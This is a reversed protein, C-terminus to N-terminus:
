MSFNRKRKLTFAGLAGLMSISIVITGFPVESTVNMSTARIAVIDSNRGRLMKVPEGEADLFNAQVAWDGIVDPTIPSSIAYYVIIGQNDWAWDAIEQPVGSPVTPTLIGSGVPVTEELESVPNGVPDLWIFKVETVESDTTGAFATVEEGIPVDEGHWNTTVGYGSSTLASWQAQAIKANALFLMMIIVMVPLAYRLKMQLALM